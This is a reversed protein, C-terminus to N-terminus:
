ITLNPDPSEVSLDTDPNPSDKDLDPSEVSLLNHNELEMNRKLSESRYIIGEIQSFDDEYITIDVEGSVNIYLSVLDDKVALSACKNPGPYQAKSHEETQIYLLGQYQLGIIRKNLIGLRILSKYRSQSVSRFLM